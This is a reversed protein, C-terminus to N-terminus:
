DRSEVIEELRVEVEFVEPRRGDKELMRRMREAGHKGYPQDVWTPEDTEPHQYRIVYVSM